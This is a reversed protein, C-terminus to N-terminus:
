ECGSDGSSTHIFCVQLGDDVAYGVTELSLLLIVKHVKRKEIRDDGQLIRRPVDLEPWPGFSLVSSPPRTRIKCRGHVIAALLPLSGSRIFLPFYSYSCVRCVFRWSLSFPFLPPREGAAWRAAAQLKYQRCQRCYAVRQALALAHCAPERGSLTQQANHPGAAFSRRRSAANSPWVGCPPRM